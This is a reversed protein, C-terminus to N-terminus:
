DRLKSIQEDNQKSYKRTMELEVKTMIITGLKKLEELFNVKDCHLAGPKSISEHLKKIRKDLKGKAALLNCCDLSIKKCEDTQTIIGRNYLSCVWWRWHEKFEISSLSYGQEKEMKEIVSRLASLTVKEQNSELQPEISLADLYSKFGDYDLNAIRMIEESLSKFFEAETLLISSAEQDVTSISYREGARGYKSVTIRLKPVSDSASVSSEDIQNSESKTKKVAEEPECPSKRKHKCRETTTVENKEKIFSQLIDNSSHTSKVAFQLHKKENSQATLTIANKNGSPKSNSVETREVLKFLHGGIDTCYLIPAGVAVLFSNHEIFWSQSSVQTGLFQDCYRECVKWDKTIKVVSSSEGSIPDTVTRTVQTNPDIDVTKVGEVSM